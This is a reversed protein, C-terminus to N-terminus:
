RRFSSTLTPLENPAPLFKTYSFTIDQEGIHIGSRPYM